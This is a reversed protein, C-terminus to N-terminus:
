GSQSRDPQTMTDSGGDLLREAKQTLQGGARTGGDEPRTLLGERRAKAVLDRTQGASLAPLPPSNRDNLASQLDVIPRRSGREVAEVYLRAVSALFRDGRPAGQDASGEGRAEVDDLAARLAALMASQNAKEFEALVEGPHLRQLLRAALPEGTTSAAASVHDLLGARQGEIAGVIRMVRVEIIAPTPTLKVYYVAMWEEDSMVEAVVAVDDSHSSQGFRLIRPPKPPMHPDYLDVAVTALVAISLLM